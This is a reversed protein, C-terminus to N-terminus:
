KPPPKTADSLKARLAAIVGLALDSSSQDQRRDLDLGREAAALAAELDFGAVLRVHASEVHVRADRPVRDLAATCLARAEDVRGAQARAGAHLLDLRARAAQWSPRPTRSRDLWRSPPLDVIGCRADARLSEQALTAAVDFRGEWEARESCAGALYTAEPGDCRAPAPLTLDGPLPLGAPVARHVDHPALGALRRALWAVFLDDFAALTGDDRARVLRGAIEARGAVADVFVRAEVISVVESPVPPRPTDTEGIGDLRLAVDLELPDDGATLPGGGGGHDLAFARRSELQYRAFVPDLLADTLTSLAAPDNTTAVALALAGVRLERSADEEDLARAYPPHAFRAALAARFLAVLRRVRDPTARTGALRGISRLVENTEVTSGELWATAQERVDDGAAEVLAKACEDRLLEDELRDSALKWLLNLPLPEGGRAIAAIAYTRSTALQTADALFPILYVSMPGHDVGALARVAADRLSASGKSLLRRWFRDTRTTDTAAPGMLVTAVAALMSDDDDAAKAAIELAFDLADVHAVVQLDRMLVPPVPFTAWQERVYRVAAQGDLMTLAKAIMAVDVGPGPRKMEHTVLELARPGRLPSGAAGLEEFVAHRVDRSGDRLLRNLLAYAAADAPRVLEHLVGEEHARWAGDLLAAELLARAQPEKRALLMTATQSAVADSADALLASALEGVVSWPEGALAQVGDTRIDDPRERAVLVRATELGGTRRLDRLAGSVHTLEARLLHPDVLSCLAPLATAEGLPLLLRIADAPNEFAAARLRRVVEEVLTTREPDDRALDPLAGFLLAKAEEDVQRHEVRAPRALWHVALRVLSARVSPETGPRGLEAVLAEAAALRALAPHVEVPPAHLLRRVLFSLWPAVGYQAIVLRRLSSDCGDAGRLALRAGAFREDSTTGTLYARRALALVAPAADGRLRHLVLRRTRLEPATDPRLATRAAVADDRDIAFLARLAAGRVGPMPDLALRALVAVGGASRGGGLGQAVLARVEFRPDDAAAALTDEGAATDHWAIARLLSLRVRLPLAGDALERTARRLGAEGAFVLERVGVREREPEGARVDDIGRAALADPDVAAPTRAVPPPPPSADEGHALPPALTLALALAGIRIPPPVPTRSM